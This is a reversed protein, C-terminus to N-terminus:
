DLFVQEFENANIDVIFFGPPNIDRGTRTSEGPNLIYTDGAKRFDAKHLHGYFIYDVDGSKLINELLDPEHLLVFRKNELTFRFPPRQIDGGLLNFVRQLGYIDSDSNGYVGKVLGKFGALKEAASPATFDGLHFLWSCNKNNAIKVAKGLNVCNSHSDSIVAIKFKEM